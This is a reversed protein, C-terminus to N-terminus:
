CLSLPVGCSSIWEPEVWVCVCVCVCVCARARARSQSRPTHARGPAAIWLFPGSHKKAILPIEPLEATLEPFARAINQIALYYNGAKPSGDIIRQCYERFPMQAISYRRGERYEAADAIKRVHVPNSGVRACLGELTWRMAPAKCLVGCSEILLPAAAPRSLYQTFFDAPKIDPVRPVAVVQM